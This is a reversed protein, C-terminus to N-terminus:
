PLLAFALDEAAAPRVDATDALYSVPTRAEAALELAM